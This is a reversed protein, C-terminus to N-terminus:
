LYRSKDKCMTGLGEARLIINKITELLQIRSKWHKVEIQYKWYKKTSAGMILKPDNLIKIIEKKLNTLTTNKRMEKKWLLLLRNSFSNPKGSIKMKSLDCRSLSNNGSLYDEFTKIYKM